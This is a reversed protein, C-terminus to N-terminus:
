THRCALHRASGAAHDTVLDVVGVRVHREQLHEVDQVFLEHVLALLRDGEIVVAAFADAAHAADHDVADGVPRLGPGRQALEVHAVELVAVFNYRSGHRARAKGTMLSRTTSRPAKSRIMAAPPKTETGVPLAGSPLAM